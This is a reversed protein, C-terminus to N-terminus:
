GLRRRFRRRTLERGLILPFWLADHVYRSALRRPDSLLRYCWEMGVAQVWRPARRQEGALFDITAGAAIAVKANLRHHFRHLWREQKPAGFGVILLDPRAENLVRVIEENQEDSAEFGFPPSLSGCVEVAPWRTLINRRALEGVGEQAGLLFVRPRFDSSSSALLQPVVDSGAVREPLACRLLRSAAVVPWGDALVLSAERYAALMKEDRQLKVVHHVNPTVIYRCIGTPEAIWQRILELVQEIRIVNVRVGFMEACPLEASARHVLGSPEVRNGDSTPIRLDIV